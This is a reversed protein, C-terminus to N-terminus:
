TSSGEFWETGGVCWDGYCRYPLLISTVGCVTYSMMVHSCRRISVSLGGRLQGSTNALRPQTCPQVYHVLWRQALCFTMTAAEPSFM